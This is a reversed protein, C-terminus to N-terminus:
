QKGVTLEVLGISLLALVVSQTELSCLREFVALPRAANSVDFPPFGPFRVFSQVLIGTMALMAVRGHKLEVARRRFLSPEDKSFGASVM